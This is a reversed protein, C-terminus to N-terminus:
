SASTPRTRPWCSSTPAMACRITADAGSPRVHRVVCIHDERSAATLSRALHSPWLETADVVGGRLRGHVALAAVRKRRARRRARGLHDDVAGVEHAERLAPQVVRHQGFVDHVVHELGHEGAARGEGAAGRQAGPQRGHELVLDDVAHAAAGSCSDSSSSAPSRRRARRMGARLRAGVFDGLLALPQATRQLADLRQRRRQAVHHPQAHEVLAVGGLDARPEADALLVQEHAQVPRALLQELQLAANLRRRDVARRARRDDADARQHQRQHHTPM